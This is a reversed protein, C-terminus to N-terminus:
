LCFIVALFSFLLTLCDNYHSNIVPIDQRHYIRRRRQGQTCPGTVARQRRNLYVVQLTHGSGASVFELESRADSHCGTISGFVEFLGM